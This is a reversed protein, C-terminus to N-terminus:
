TAESSEGDHGLGLVRIEEEVHRPEGVLKDAETALYRELNRAQPMLMREFSGIADGHAKVTQNLEKGVKDLHEAFKKLRRHFEEALEGIKTANEVMSVERWSYAVAKLVALLTVPGTVLIRKKAQFDILEPDVKLAAYYAAEVPIFVVVFELSDFQTQYEKKSLLDLHTRVTKAHKQLLEAAERESGAQLSLRYSELPAKSDVVIERRGPLGVVMDPQIGDGAVQREFDVHEALGALEVVRRLQIEGWGGRLNSTSLLRNLALTNETLSTTTQTLKAYANERKQELERIEAELRNQLEILPKIKLDALGLFKTSNSELSEASLKAFSNQLRAEDERLAKLQSEFNERTQKHAKEETALQRRAGEKLIEIERNKSAIDRNAARQLETKEQQWQKELQHHSRNVQSLEREHADVAMQAERSYEEHHIAIESDKANLRERLTYFVAYGAGAAGAAAGVVLGLGLALTPDM